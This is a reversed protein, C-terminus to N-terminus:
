WQFPQGYLLLSLSNAYEAYKSDHAEYEINDMADCIWEYLEESPNDYGENKFTNKISVGHEAGILNRVDSIIAIWTNSSYQYFPSNHSFKTVDSLTDIIFEKDENFVDVSGLIRRKIYRKM